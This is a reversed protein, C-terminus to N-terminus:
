VVESIHLRCSFIELTAIEDLLARKSDCIHIKYVFISEGFTIYTVNKM